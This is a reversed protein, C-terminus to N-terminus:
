VLYLLLSVLTHTYGMGVEDEEDPELSSNMKQIRPVSLLNMKVNLPQKSM